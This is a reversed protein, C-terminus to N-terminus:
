DLTKSIANLRDILHNAERASLASGASGAIWAIATGLVSAVSVIARRTVDENRWTAETRASTPSRKKTVAAPRKRKSKAMRKNEGETQKM